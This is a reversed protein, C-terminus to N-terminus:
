SEVAAEAESAQAAPLGLELAKKLSTSAAADNLERQTMGLYFWTTADTPDAVSADRLLPLARSYDKARYLVVGGAKAVAADERYATRADNILTAARTDDKESAALLILLRRKAPAFDPFQALVRDYAQISQQPASRFEELAGSAMLVPVGPEKLKMADEIEAAAAGAKAPTESLEIMRLALETDSAWAAGAGLQLARRLAVGAEDVRGLSYAAWGFAHLMEADEQKRLAEQLLSYSWRFDKTLYAARGLTFAINADDPALKRANRGLEIAEAAENRRLHVEMLRHMARVNDPNVKLAETFYAKAQALDGAREELAGLRVLAIPDNPRDKLTTKLLSEQAATAEQPNIGIITLRQRADDAGDFSTDVALAREFSARAADEIGMMYQVMGLHYQVEANSTLKEAAERILSLAWPYQGRRFAIWGLTDAVSPDHPHFERAKQAANQAKELENFKEAYLYAANNLAVVSRADVKLVEEYAKLAEEHHEQNQHLMAITLWARVNQPDREVVKMLNQRAEEERGSSAYYGALLGYAGPSDPSLEIAKLLDAEAEDARGAAFLIKARLLPFFAADARKAAAQNVLDLAADFKREALDVNVLLEVPALADPARELAKRFAARAEDFRKLQLLVQGKLVAAQEHGAFRREIEEYVALSAELDGKNRQIEALLLWAQITAPRQEVVRQLTAVAGAIDGTRVLLNAQLLSAEILDPSGTLAQNVFALAKTSDGNAAYAAALQYLFQPSSPFITLAREFEAIAKEVDGKALRIRGNLLLADPNAPDRSLIRELHKAAEDYAHGNAAIQALLLWAPLFDPARETLSQVYAQAKATEGKAILFQAYQLRRGSRDASLEAGRELAVEAEAMRGRSAELMGLVTFAHPFTPDQTTITELSRLASDIKGSKLDLVALATRVPPAERAAEPLGQLYERAVAAEEPNTAAEVLLLPADHHNPDLELVKTAEQRVVQLNRIALNVIGRRHHADVNEPQLEVLRQLAPAAQILRGQDAFLITLRAVATPNEPDVKLANRYAIEAREFDGAEVYRAGEALQDELRAEKSCGAEFLALISLSALILRPLSM